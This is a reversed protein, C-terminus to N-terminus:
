WGCGQCGGGGDGGSCGCGSCTSCGFTKNSSELKENELNYEEKKLIMKWFQYKELTKVEKEDIVKAGGELM